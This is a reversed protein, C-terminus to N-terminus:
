TKVPIDITNKVTKQPTGISDCKTANFIRIIHYINAHIFSKVFEDGQRM